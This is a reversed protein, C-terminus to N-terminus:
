SSTTTARMRMPKMIITMIMMMMMMKTTIARIMQATIIRVIKENDNDDTYLLLNFESLNLLTTQKREDSRRTEESHVCRFRGEKRGDTWGDEAVVVALGGRM